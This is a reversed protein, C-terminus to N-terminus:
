GADSRGLDDAGFLPEMYWGAAFDEAAFIRDMAQAGTQIVPRLEHRYVLETVATGSYGAVGRDARRVGVAGLYVLAAPRASGVRESRDRACSCDAGSM